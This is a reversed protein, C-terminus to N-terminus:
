IMQQFFIHYCKGGQIIIGPLHFGPLLKYLMTRRPFLLAKPFGEDAETRYPSEFPSLGALQSIFRGDQVESLHTHYSNFRHTRIPKLRNLDSLRFVQIGTPNVARDTPARAGCHAARSGACCGPRPRVACM